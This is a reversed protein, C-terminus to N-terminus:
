PPATLRDPREIKAALAKMGLKDALDRGTGAARRRDVARARAAVAGGPAPDAAFPEDEVLREFRAADVADAPLRLEYGRGSTIIAAQEGDLLKRLQSVYLQVMKPASAPQDEGWLAEMLRDASVTSNADLVALLARQKVARLAYRGGPRLVQARGIGLVRREGVPGGAGGRDVRLEDGRAAADRWRRGGLGDGRLGPRVVV